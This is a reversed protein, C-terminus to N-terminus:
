DEVQRGTLLQYLWLLIIFSFVVYLVNAINTFTAKAVPDGIQGSIGQMMTPFGFVTFRVVNWILQLSSWIHGVFTFITSVKPETQNMFEEPNVREEYDEVDGTGYLLNSFETGPVSSVYMLGCVLNLILLYLIIQFGIKM